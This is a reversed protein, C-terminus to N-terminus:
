LSKGRYGYVGGRLNAVRQRAQQPTDNNKITLWFVHLMSLGIIIGIPYIAYTAAFLVASSVYPAINILLGGILTFTIIKKM